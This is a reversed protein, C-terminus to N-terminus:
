AAVLEAEMMEAVHGARVDLTLELSGRTQPHRMFHFHTRGSSQFTAGARALRRWLAWDQLAVDPFGGVALFAERRIASSGVFVNRSSALYEDATLQPVVYIEGDSRHFGMQWVDAEVDELGDLADPMLLDDLDAIVVWDTEAHRIAANLYFAQPHRWECPAQIVTPGSARVFGDVSAIVADPQPDLMQVAQWWPKFFSAYRPGYGCTVVTVTM